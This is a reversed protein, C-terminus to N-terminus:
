GFGQGSADGVLYITASNTARAPIDPPAEKATLKVLAVFDYKLRPVCKVYKLPQTDRLEADNCYAKLSKWGDSDQGHRWSNLTLYIGKLYPVM